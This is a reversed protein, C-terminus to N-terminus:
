MKFCLMFTTGEGPLSEVKVMGNHQEMIGYLTSLGLGVGYGEKKTTFFPEFIHSLDEPSIGTGTDKVAVTVFKEEPDYDSTLTLSGGKPMADMANFILNIVCQQLQNFDGKIRPIDPAVRHVLRINNLELKHQSMLVCRHLLEDVQIDGFAPSSKRSFTLLSSVIQSCRSTENVVLDLYQRFKKQRDEKLPGRELIRSMLRGYNLIGALPNNIEHVVSAALKGLSMMKDQHLIRAQDQVERELKRIERLDRFFCVLGDEKGQNFIVSASLQVPICQDDKGRLTTEFLFLRNKGGYKESALETKLRKEEGPPFFQGLVMQNLVQTQSYGLLAEMSRNFTIIKEQGNCGIIGDMSSEILNQQFAFTEMLERTTKSLGEELFTTYDQLQRRTTHRHKARDLAVNLADEHIPKSIFDSADLQLARITVDMEGFATAVIVEIDPYQRKIAELVQLGDMGPMRIDTIVIQPSIKGCLCLGEIGDSATWVHYGADALTIRMTKRIGEEDDIFVIKWGNPQAM